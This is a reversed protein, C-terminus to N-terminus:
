YSGPVEGGNRSGLGQYVTPNVTNSIFRVSGDALLGNVGGDHYSRAYLANQSTTSSGAGANTVPAKPISQGQYAQRDPLSTNPPAFTTFWNNGEWTNCYRGRLDNATLDPSVCIESMLLTNSTGDTIGSMKTKSQVFFIGNLPAGSYVQGNGYPTSGACVVYNVHLGQLQTGGGAAPIANGDRTKTKPSNEDAPCILTKIVTDKNPMTLAWGTNPYSNVTSAGGDSVWTQYLNNQEIYPLIVQAWCGRDWPSAEGWFPNWQGPPFSENDNHYGHMAIGLQKLNNQCQSKVAAARVKQVAPILLGILIAIISIVVLLEILTFGSV